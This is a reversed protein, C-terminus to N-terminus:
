AQKCWADALPCASRFMDGNVSPDDPFPDTKKSVSDVMWNRRDRMKKIKCAGHANKSPGFSSRAPACLCCQASPRFCYLVSSPFRSSLTYVRWRPLSLVWWRLLSCVFLLAVILWVLLATNRLALSATFAPLSLATNESVLSAALGLLLTVAFSCSLM